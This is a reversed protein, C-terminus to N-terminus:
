DRSYQLEKMVQPITLKSFIQRLTKGKQDPEDLVLGQEKAYTMLETRTPLVKSVPKSVTEVQIPEEKITEVKIEEPVTPTFSVGSTSIPETIPQQGVIVEEKVPEAKPAHASARAIINELDSPKNLEEVTRRVKEAEGEEPKYQFVEEGVFIKAVVDARAAENNTKIKAKTLVKDTLHKIAHDALFRPFRAVAGAKITYPYNGRSRDYEFTFDEDDVNKLTVIDHLSRIPDTM